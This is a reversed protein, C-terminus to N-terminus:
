GAKIFTNSNVTCNMETMLGSKGRQRTLGVKTNGSLVGKYSVTHADSMRYVLGHAILEATPPVRM